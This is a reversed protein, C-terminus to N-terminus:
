SANFLGLDLTSDIIQCKKMNRNIRKILNEDEPESNLLNVVFMLLEKALEKEGIDYAWFIICSRVTIDNRGLITESVYTKTQMDNYEIYKLLGKISCLNGSNRIDRSIDYM